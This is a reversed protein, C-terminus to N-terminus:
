TGCSRTRWVTQELTHRRKSPPSRACSEIGGLGFGDLLCSAGHLLRKSACACCVERATTAEHTRTNALNDFQNCFISGAGLESARRRAVNVPHEPNAISAPKVVELEAGLARILQLKQESTDDPAVLLARYGCARAVMALSVGTSGATAEVVTGGARLLGAQEAERVIALAVRDKSSGGSHMLAAAAAAIMLPCHLLALQLLALMCYHLCTMTFAHLRAVTCGHLCAITRRCQLLALAFDGPNMFEAKGLITCGTAQSLSHLHLMPTNGILDLVTKAPPKRRRRQRLALLLAAAAIVATGSLVLLEGRIM